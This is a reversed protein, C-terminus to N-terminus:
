ARVPVPLQRRRSDARRDGGAGREVRRRVPGATVQLHLQVSTCAAEPVISGTSWTLREVGDIDLMFDEGRMMLIQENLLSYRDVASLNATVLDSRTITPLIGIMVVGADIEAAQRHAYGLGASLEEALQDFVRGGLRHPLVNVELNFMGLETQFDPSAIRELVQANVMRPLGDSGALNLEIELGMMNKPRDFRKEALLRELGELCEHLKRRYKQRDSLDFGGAVVKEGM